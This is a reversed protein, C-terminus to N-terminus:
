IRTISASSVRDDSVQVDVNIVKNFIEQTKEELKSLFVDATQSIKESFSSAAEDTTTKFQAEQAPPAKVSDLLTTGKEGVGRSYESFRTQFSTFLNRLMDQFNTEAAGVDSGTVQRGLVMNLVKNLQSDALATSERTGYGRREREDIKGAESELAKLATMRNAMLDSEAQSKALLQDTRSLLGQLEPSSTTPMPVTVGGYTFSEPVAGTKKSASLDPSQIQQQDSSSASQETEKRVTAQPQEDKGSEAISKQRLLANTNADLAKIQREAAAIQVAIISRIREDAQQINKKAAENIALAQDKQRQNVESLGTNAFAVLDIAAKKSEEVNKQDQEANGTKVAQGPLSEAMSIAQKYLNEAQDMRGASEADIARSLTTKVDAVSADYKAKGELGYNRIKNISDQVAQQNSRIKANIGEIDQILSASQSRVQKFLELAKEPLTPALSIAEKLKDAVEGAKLQLKTYENATSMTIQMLADHTASQEDRLQKELDNIKKIQDEKAKIQNTIEQNVVQSLKQADSIQAETYQKELDHLKKTNDALDTGQSILQQYYNKQTNFSQDRAEKTRNYEDQAAAIRQQSQGLILQDIQQKALLESQTSSQILVKKREFAIKDQDERAKATDQILKIEVESRNKELQILEETRKKAEGKAQTENGVADKLKNRANAEDTILKINEQTANIQGKTTRILEELDKIADFKDSGSEIDVPTIKEEALQNELEQLQANYKELDAVADKRKQALTEYPDIKLGSSTEPVVKVDVAKKLREYLGKTLEDLPKGTAGMVLKAFDEVSKGMEAYTQATTEVLRRQKDVSDANTSDNLQKVLGFTKRLEDPLDKGVAARYSEAFDDVSEGRKTFDAMISSFDRASEKLDEFKDKAGTLSSILSVISGVIMGGLSVIQALPHPIFGILGSITTLGGAIKGTTNEAQAMMGLGGAAGLVGTLAGMGLGSGPMTYSPAIPSGRGVRGTSPVVAGPGLNAAREANIRRQNAASLANVAITQENIAATETRLAATKSLTVSVLRQGVGLVSSFAGVLPGFVFILGRVALSLAGAAALLLGFAGLVMTTGNAITPHAKGFEVLSRLLGSLTDILGKTSSLFPGAFQIAVDEAASKLNKWAPLVGQNMIDVVKQLSGGSNENEQTLNKIADINKSAILAVTAGQDGFIQFAQGTNMGSRALQEMTATLNVAGDTNKVIEVGLSALATRAENTPDSLIGIIRRLGTGAMSAKINNNAFIGLYAATEEVTMGLQAAIPAVFKLAEALESMSTTTANSTKALVDTVRTAQDVALGFSSLIGVLDEATEKMGRGESFALNLAPGVSAVIQGVDYGARALEGMGQAVQAATYQTNAGFQRATDVLTEFQKQATGTDPAFDAVAKVKNMENEFDAATKAALTLPAIISAGAGGLAVGVSTLTSAIGDLRTKLNQASSQAQTLGSSLKTGMDTASSGATKSSSSIDDISVKVNKFIGSTQDVARILLNLVVSKDNAM